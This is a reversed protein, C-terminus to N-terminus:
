TVVQSSRTDVAYIRRLQNRRPRNILRVVRGDIDILNQAFLWRCRHRGLRDIGLILDDVEESVIVAATVEFDTLKLTLEVEGLLSIETGNAAYLKQTTPKLLENLIVRRSVVSTHCRTNLLRYIGRGNLGLDLYVVVGNRGDTFISVSGGATRREASTNGYEEATRCEPAKPGKEVIGVLTEPHRDAVCETGEEVGSPDVHFRLPTEFLVAITLDRQQQRVHSM